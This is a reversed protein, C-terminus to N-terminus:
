ENFVHKKILKQMTWALKLCILGCLWYRIKPDDSRNLGINASESAVFGKYFFFDWVRKRGFETGGGRLISQLLFTSLFYRERTSPLSFHYPRYPFLHSLESGVQLKQGQPLTISKWRFLMLTFFILLSTTTLCQRARFHM